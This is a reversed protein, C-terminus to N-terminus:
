YIHPYAHCLMPYCRSFSECKHYDISKIVEPNKVCVQKQPIARIFAQYPRRPRDFKFTFIVMDFKEKFRMKEFMINIFTGDSIVRNKYEEDDKLMEYLEDCIEFYTLLDEPNDLDWIRDDDVIIQSKLIAYKQFLHEALKSVDQRYKKIPHVYKNFQKLIWDYAHIEDEFFYIGDGLWHDCKMVENTKKNKKYYTRSIKFYKSKIIKEGNELTTGHYLVKNYVM